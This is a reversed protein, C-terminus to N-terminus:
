AKFPIFHNIGIQFLGYELQIQRCDLRLYSDGVRITYLIISNSITSIFKFIHNSGDHQLRRM